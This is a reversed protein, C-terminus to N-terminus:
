AGKVLLSYLLVGAVAGCFFADIRDFPSRYFHTAMIAVLVCYLIRDGRKM